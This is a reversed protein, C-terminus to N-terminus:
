FQYFLVSDVNLKQIHLFEELYGPLIKLYEFYVSNGLTPLLHIFTQITLKKEKYLQKFNTPTYYDSIMQSSNMQFLIAYIKKNYKFKYYYIKIPINEFRTEKVIFVRPLRRTSIKKKLFEISVPILYNKWYSKCSPCKQAYDRHWYDIPFETIVHFEPPIVTSDDVLTSLPKLEKGDYIYVGNMRYGNNPDDKNEVFDGRKIIKSISLPLNPKGFKKSNNKVAFVSCNKEM